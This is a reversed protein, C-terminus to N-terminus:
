NTNNQDYQERAIIYEKCFGSRVIDNSTFEIFDVSPIMRLVSNLVHIGSKTRTTLLDNQKTDGVLIIRSNEGMRTLVTHGEVDTANQYEDFLILTNRLTQGRLFSTSEFKVILKDRLIAYADDRGFLENILAIYPTEYVAVKEKEDGKLFGIEKSPTASRIITLSTCDTNNNILDNFFLSLAIYTKGTGASGHLVLHKDNYYSEFARRQNDTIPQVPKIELNNWTVNNRLKKGIRAKAQRKM